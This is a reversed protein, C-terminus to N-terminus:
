KKIYKNFDPDNYMKFQKYVRYFCLGLTCRTLLEDLCSSLDLKQKSLINLRFNCKTIHSESVDTRKLQKSVEYIKLTLISLRDIISGATESNQYANKQLNIDQFNLLIQDDICEIANNRIQNFKDIARKNIVVESPDVYDRRALDEQHWLISNCQHNLKIYDWIDKSAYDPVVEILDSSNLNNQCNNIENLSLIKNM